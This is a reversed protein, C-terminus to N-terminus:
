NIRNNTKQIKVFNDIEKFTENSLIMLDKTERSEFNRPTLNCLGDKNIGFLIPEAFGQFDISFDEKCSVTTSVVCFENKHNEQGGIIHIENAMSIVSFKLRNALLSGTKSWTKGNFCLIENTVQYGSVVGGFVYFSGKYSVIKVSHIDIVKPYPDLISWQWNDFSLLEAIRHAHGGVVFM